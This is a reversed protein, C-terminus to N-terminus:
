EINELAPRHVHDFAEMNHGSIMKAITVAFILLIFAGLILGLVNNNKSQRAKIEQDPSLNEPEPATMVFARALHFGDDRVM